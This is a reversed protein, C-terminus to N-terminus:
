QDFIWQRTAVNFRGTQGYHNRFFVQGNPGTAGTIRLEGINQPCQYPYYEQVSAWGEPRIGITLGCNDQSTMAYVAYNEGCWDQMGGIHWATEYYRYSLSTMVRDMRPIERIRQLSAPIPNKPRTLCDVFEGLAAQADELPQTNITVSGAASQAANSCGAAFLVVLLM